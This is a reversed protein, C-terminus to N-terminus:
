KQYLPNHSQTRNFYTLHVLSMPKRSPESPGNYTNSLHQHSTSLMAFVFGLIRGRRLSFISWDLIHYDLNTM